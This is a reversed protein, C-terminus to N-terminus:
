NITAIFHSLIWLQPSQLDRVHLCGVFERSLESRWNSSFFIFIKKGPPISFCQMNEHRMTFDYVAISFLPSNSNHFLTTCVQWELVQFYLLNQSMGVLGLAVRERERQTAFCDLRSELAFLLYVNIGEPQNSKVHVEICRTMSLSITVVPIAWCLACFHEGKRLSLQLSQM